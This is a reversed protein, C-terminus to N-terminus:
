EGGVNKNAGRIRPENPHEDMWARDESGQERAAKVDAPEVPEDAATAKKTDKEDAM